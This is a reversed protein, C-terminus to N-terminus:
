GVSFPEFTNKPNFAVDNFVSGREVQAELAKAKSAAVAVVPPTPASGAAVKFKVQLPQGSARTLVEQLLGIYNDKLWVECFDNAVELTIGNEELTHPRLPAFWLNFTDANLMGRLQEQAATWIKEMSAQM